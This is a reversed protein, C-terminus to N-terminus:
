PERFTQKFCRIMKRHKQNTVTLDSSTLFNNQNSVNAYIPFRRFFISTQLRHFSLNPHVQNHQCTNQLNTWIKSFSATKKLLISIVHLIGQLHFCCISGFCYMDKLNCPTKGPLDATEFLSLINRNERTGHSLFYKGDCNLINYKFPSWGRNQKWHVVHKPELPGDDTM